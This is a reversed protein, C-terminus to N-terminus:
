LASLLMTMTTAVNTGAIIGLARRLKIFQDDYRGRWVSRHWTTASWWETIPWPADKSEASLACPAAIGAHAGILDTLAPASAKRPVHTMEIGTMSKFMEAFLQRMRRRWHPRWVPSHWCCNSPAASSGATATKFLRASLPPWQKRLAYNHHPGERRAYALSIAENALRM